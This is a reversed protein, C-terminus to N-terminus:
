SVSYVAALLRSDLGLAWAKIDREMVMAIIGGEVTGALCVLTTLSLEAPYEKLTM